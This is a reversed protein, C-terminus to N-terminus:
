SRRAPPAPSLRVVSREEGDADPLLDAFDCDVCGRKWATDLRQMYITDVAGCSPCVAGAIFRKRITRERSKM